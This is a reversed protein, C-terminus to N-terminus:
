VSPNRTATESDDISATQMDLPKQRGLIPDEGM